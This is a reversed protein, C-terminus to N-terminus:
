PAPESFSVRKAKKAEDPSPFSHRASGPTLLLGYEYGKEPHGKEIETSFGHIRFDIKERYLFNNLTTSCGVASDAMSGRRIHGFLALVPQTLDDTLELLMILAAKTKPDDICFQDVQQALSNFAVSHTM